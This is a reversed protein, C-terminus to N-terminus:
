YGSPNDCWPGTAGSPKYLVGGPLGSDETFGILWPEWFKRKAAEVLRDMEPQNTTDIFLLDWGKRLDWPHGADRKVTVTHAM